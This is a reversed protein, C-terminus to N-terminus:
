TTPPVRARVSSGTPSPRSPSTSGATASCGRSTCRSGNPTCTSPCTPADAGVTRSSARSPLGGDHVDMEHAALTRPSGLVRWTGMVAEGSRSAPTFGPASRVSDVLNDLLGPSESHKPAHPLSDLDLDPRPRPGGGRNNQTQQNNQTQNNQNGQQNNQNNQAQQDGQNQQNGQTQTNGQNGQVPAAPPVNNTPNPPRLRADRELAFRHDEGRGRAAAADGHRLRENDLAQTLREERGPLDRVANVSADRDDRATDM